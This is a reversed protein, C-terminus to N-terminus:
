HVGLAQRLDPWINQGRGSNSFSPLVSILFLSFYPLLIFPFAQCSALEATCSRMQYLMRAVSVQQALIQGHQTLRTSASAFSGTHTSICPPAPYPLLSASAERM